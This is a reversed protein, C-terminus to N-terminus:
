PLYVNNWDNLLNQACWNLMSTGFLEVLKNREHFLQRHKSIVPEFVVWDSFHQRQHRKSLSLNILWNNFIPRKTILKVDDKFTLTFNHYGILISIFHLLHNEFFIHEFLLQFISHCGDLWELGIQFLLFLILELSLFLSLCFIVLSWKRESPYRLAGWHIM